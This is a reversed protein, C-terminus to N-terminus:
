RPMCAGATVWSQNHRQQLSCAFGAPCEESAGAPDCKTRCLGAVCFTTARGSLDPCYKTCAESCFGFSASAAMVCRRGSDCDGDALCRDGIWGDSGPRCVTAKKSPQGFRPQNAARTFGDYQRCSHNFETAKYTCYGASSHAPDDVCFTVPYGYKDYSCYRQCAATCFGRGSYPNQKCVGGSYNCDADASCESLIWRQPLDRARGSLDRDVEKQVRVPVKATGRIYAWLEAVDAGEMRICGHSVHGRKLKGGSALYYASVPGHIGYAGYWSIFPLGAFVPLRKGTDRDLWWIRCPNVSATTVSFEKRGTRRLPYMSLSEGYTLSSSKTDVAGVGVAYVKSFGATADELHLTLGNLSITIRPDALPQLNPFTKCQTAFGWSGDAKNDPVDGLPLDEGEAPMAPDPEMPGCSATLLCCLLPALLGRPLHKNQM